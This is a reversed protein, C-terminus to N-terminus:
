APWGGRDGAPPAEAMRGQDPRDAGRHPEGPGRSRSGLQWRPPHRYRPRGHQHRHDGFRARWGQAIIEAEKEHYKANLVKHEIGAEQLLKSVYESSEISATGVLIPRGLAQCQKIDTIIAAYKEEQTLYVLDNFDKRAIPRHTPIVVVDLGYIQRFEFAETDATGTM